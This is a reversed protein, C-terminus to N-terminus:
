VQIFTDAVERQYIIDKIRKKQWKGNNFQLYDAGHSDIYRKGAESNGWLYIFLYGKKEADAAYNTADSISDIGQILFRNNDKSIQLEFKPTRIRGM